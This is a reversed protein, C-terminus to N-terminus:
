LVIKLAVPLSMIMTLAGTLTWCLAQIAVCLQTPRILVVQRCSSFSIMTEAVALETKYDPKVPAKCNSYILLFYHKMFM